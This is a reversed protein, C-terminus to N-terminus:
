GLDVYFHVYTMNTKKTRCYFKEVEMSTNVFKMVDNAKANKLASHYEMAYIHWMKRETGRSFLM